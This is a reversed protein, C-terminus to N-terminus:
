STAKGTQGSNSGRRCWAPAGAPGAFVDAKRHRAPTAHRDRVADPFQERMPNTASFDGRQRARYNCSLRTKACPRTAATAVLM